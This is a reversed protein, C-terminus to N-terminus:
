FTNGQNSWSSHNSKCSQQYKNKSKKRWPVCLYYLPRMKSPIQPDGMCYEIKYMGKAKRLLWLSGPLLRGKKHGTKYTQSYYFWSSLNTCGIVRYEVGRTHQHRCISIIGSWSSKFFPKWVVLLYASYIPNTTFTFFVLSTFDLLSLLFKELQKVFSCENLSYNM